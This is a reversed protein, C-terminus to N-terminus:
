RVDASNREEDPLGKGRSVFRRVLVYLPPVFLIGVVTATLMGWFTSVGVARRANAGAGTATVLPIVGIVFSLATMQVSRFRQKLGEIAAEVLPMGAAEKQMSYEAMLIASKATIGVLMLLGLQCYINMAIGSAKLGLLGGLLSVVVCLIVPLPVTWSEYQGVLFLYAMVLSLALMWVIEGENQKEQYSMDTFSVQWDGGMESVQKEIERMLEGSSVGPASQATFSAARFLNFREVQRPGVTWRFTGVSMIPVQAGGEGPVHMSGLQNPTARNALDAQINVQYNKGSLNFDNVYYSGLQGQLASFVDSVKVGMQEALARDLAFRLMPTSANFSSSAYLAAGSATLRASLEGVARELDSYTVDGVAQLQFSVGGSAGLGAIPPPVFAIVRAAAIDATEAMIRRQVDFVSHGEGGREEWPKLVVIMYGLNEGAGGMISFGPVESVLKVDEMKRIRGGIEAMTKGTRALVSGPPLTVDVFMAGKDESAVFEPPLSKFLHVDAAIVAAFVLVTVPMFRIMLRCCAAAGDRIRDFCTNFLKFFGKAPPARRLTMAALAPSLTMACLTSLCLAVCMTVSFQLYITGVMGHAFGIPAYVALVVLTSAILAMTVEKMTEVVATGPPKGAELKTMCSETVCIADDVVSGIVLILAFMTLTNVSMGFMQMFLFTGVLSVPIAVTPILTARWSQLFLWTILVVLLFTECLTEVIERMSTKVFDTTDYAMDWRMGDPMSRQVNELTRRIEDVIDLANGDKLKYVAIMVGKEGNFTCTNAYREAGLEVRAIDKMRVMRGRDASYRVVIDEFERVTKLRGAALIKFQMMSGAGEAGVSGAAAQLNQSSIAARVEAVGIGLSRMREPDLWCRMSRKAEGFLQISGVGEIRAVADRIRIDAFTSVDILSHAPNSSHVAVACLMDASRKMVKVGVSKVEQPLQPEVLKVANNVNVLAMDEDAGPKFTVALEYNGSNDSKSSFYIVDQVTNIESELPSAVSNAIEDASAGAYYATVTICPPAVVPYESVPLRVACIAGALFLIISIVAALRPRKIFLQAFM